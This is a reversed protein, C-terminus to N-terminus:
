EPQREQFSDGWVDSAVKVGYECVNEMAWKHAWELAAERSVGVLLPAVSALDTDEDSAFLHFVPWGGEFSGQGRTVLLYNDASM